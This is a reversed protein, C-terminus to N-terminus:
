VSVNMVVELSLSKMFSVPKVEGNNVAEYVSVPIGEGIGLCKMLSVPKEVM